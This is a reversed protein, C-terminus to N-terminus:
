RGPSGCLASAMDRYDAASLGGAAYIRDATRELDPCSQRLNLAAVATLVAPQPNASGLGYQTRLLDAVETPHDRLLSVTERKLRDVEPSVDYAEVQVATIYPGRHQRSAAEPKAPLDILQRLVAGVCDRSHIGHAEFRELLMTEARPDLEGDTEGVYRCLSGRRGPDAAIVDFAALRIPTATNEEVVLRQVFYYAVPRNMAALQALAAPDGDSAAAYLAEMHQYRQKLVVGVVILTALAVAISAIWIRTRKM